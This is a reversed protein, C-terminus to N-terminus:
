KLLRGNVGLDKSHKIEKKRQKEREKLKGCCSETHM